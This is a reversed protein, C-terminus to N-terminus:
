PKLYCTYVSLEYTHTHGGMQRDRDRTRERWRKFESGVDLQGSWETDVQRIFWFWIGSERSEKGKGTPQKWLRGGRFCYDDQAELDPM